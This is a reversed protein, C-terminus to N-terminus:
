GAFVQLSGSADVVDPKTVIMVSKGTIRRIGEEVGFPRVAGVEKDLPILRNALIAEISLPDIYATTLRKTMAATSACLGTGSKNFSKSALIRRFGNADVSSPGGSANTRLAADRVMEGNIQQYITDPVNEVSGYLLSGLRDEQPSPHKDRLQAMVDDTVPLVGAGDNESLYRLTSNIQGVYCPSFFKEQMLYILRRSNSLRQIMLGERM